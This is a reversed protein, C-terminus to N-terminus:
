NEALKALEDFAVQAVSERRKATMEDESDGSETLLPWEPGNTLMVSHWRYGDFVALAWSKLRRGEFEDHFSPEGLEALLEPSQALLGAVDKQLSKFQTSDNPQLSIWHSVGHPVHVAALRQTLMRSPELDYVSPFAECLVGYVKKAQCYVGDTDEARVSAVLENVAQSLSTKFKATVSVGRLRGQLTEMISTLDHLEQIDWTRVVKRDGILAKIRHICASLMQCCSAERQHSKLYECHVFLAEHYPMLQIEFLNDKLDEWFNEFLFASYSVRVKELLSVYEKEAPVQAHHKADGRLKQVKRVANLFLLGIGEQRILGIASDIGITKQGTRYVDQGLMDLKQYFAFEFAEELLLVSHRRNAPDIEKSKAMAEHFDEISAEL